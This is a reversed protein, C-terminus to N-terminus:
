GRKKRRRSRRLHKIRYIRKKAKALRRRGQYESARGFYQGALALARVRGLGPPRSNGLALERLLVASHLLSWPLYAYLPAGAPFFAARQRALSPQVGVRYRRYWLVEEVQGFEGHLAAESLLLRDPLLVRRYVGCKTLVNSRFMGYVMNGAAMGDIALALRKEPSSIGRTEFHWADRVTGGVDNIGVNLPYALVVRPDGDLVALLAEAWRPHWVDHDSGWAFYASDPYLERARDFCRRWNSIMGLRQPNRMYSVREDIAAYGRVITESDDSSADDVVVVAIEPHTQNLLSELAEAVHASGNYLPVGIVVRPTVAAATEL